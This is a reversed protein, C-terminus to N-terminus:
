ASCCTKNVSMRISFRESLLLACPAVVLGERASFSMADILPWLAERSRKNRKTNKETFCSTLTARSDM